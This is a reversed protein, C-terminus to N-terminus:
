LSNSNAVWVGGGLDYLKAVGYNHALAVSSSGNVTDSGQTAITINHTAADGKGDVIIVSRRCGGANTSLPLNVTTAAGTGKNVFIISENVVTYNGTTITHTSDYRLPGRIARQSM